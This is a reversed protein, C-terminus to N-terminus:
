GASKEGKDSATKKGPLAPIGKKAYAHIEGLQRIRGGVGWNGDPVDHVIVWPAWWVGNDEPLGLVDRIARHVTAAIDDKKGRAHLGGSPVSVEVLFRAGPPAYTEDFKGGIAWHHPEVEHYLVWAISRSAENDVGEIELLYRTLMETLRECQTPALAGRTMTVRIMPM